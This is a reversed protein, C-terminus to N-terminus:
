LDWKINQYDLKFFSNLFIEVNDMYKRLNDYYNKASQGYFCSEILGYLPIDPRYLEQKIYSKDNHVLEYHMMCNRYETPFLNRGNEIITSLLELDITNSKTNEFHHQIIKLGTWINHSIIYECRYEWQNTDGLIKRLVYKYSGIMGLMHLLLLNLGKDSNNKFLINDNNSNYDIYGIKFDIPTSTKSTKHNCKSLMLIRKIIIGMKNGLNYAKQNIEDNNIEASDFYFSILQTDGIIHGNKDFYIGLNYYSAQKNTPANELLKIYYDNQDNDIKLFSKEIKNYKYCLIKISNRLDAIQKETKEDMIRLNYFEQAERCYLGIFPLTIISIIGRYSSNLLLTKIIIGDNTIIQKATKKLKTNFSNKM